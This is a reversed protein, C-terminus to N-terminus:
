EAEPEVMFRYGLGRITILRKPKSPNEEIKERVWRIHVDLTRTDGMYDTDWVDQMLKKRSLAKNHHSVFLHLLKFEKPTLSYKQGNHLVNLQKCDIILDSMRLFRGQQKITADQMGQQLKHRPVLIANSNRDQQLDNQHSVVIYPINLAIKNIAQQFVPMDLSDQIPHFVVLSPWYRATKQTATEPTHVLWVRHGQEQLYPELSQNINNNEVLLVHM